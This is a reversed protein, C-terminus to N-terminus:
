HLFFIEFIKKPVIGVFFNMVCILVLQSVFLEEERMESERDVTYLNFTNSLRPGGRGVDAQHLLVCKVGVESAKARITFNSAGEGDKSVSIDLCGDAWESCDAGGAAAAGAARCLQTDSSSVSDVCVSVEADLGEPCSVTFEAYNDSSGKAVSHYKGDPPNFGCRSGVVTEQVLSTVLLVALSKLM